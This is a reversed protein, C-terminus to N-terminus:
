ASPPSLKGNTITWGNPQDFHNAWDQASVALLHDAAPLNPYQFTTTDYWGVVNQPSEATPDFQAYFAM